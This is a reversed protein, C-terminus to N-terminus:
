KVLAHELEVPLSAIGAGEITEELKYVRAVKSIDSLPRESILIRSNLGEKGSIEGYMKVQVRNGIVTVNKHRYRNFVTAPSHFWYYHGNVRDPSTSCVEGSLYFTCRFKQSRSQEDVVIKLDSKTQPPIKMQQSITWQRQVSREGGGGAEVNLEGSFESKATAFLGGIEFALKAGLKVGGKINWTTKDVTTKSISLTHVQEVTSDNTVTTQDLITPQVPQLAPDEYYEVEVQSIILRREEFGKVEHKMADLKGGWIACWWEGYKKFTGDIDLINSDTFTETTQFTGWVFGKNDSPGSGRYICLNGDDQMLLFSQGKGSTKSEWALSKRNSPATGRYICFNGDELLAFTPGTGPTNTEWVFNKRDSPGSGRYVCFNGDKQMIAYFKKGPSALYENESLSHGSALFLKETFSMPSEGIGPQHIRETGLLQFDARTDKEIAPFLAPAPHLASHIVPPLEAFTYRLM